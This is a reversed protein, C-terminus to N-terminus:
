RMSSSSILTSPRRAAVSLVVAEAALVWAVTFDTPGATYRGEAQRAMGPIFFLDLLWGVGLLGLTFFWITGTIPKGFYFRHSGTFGFIWLIYGVAVSHTPRTSM